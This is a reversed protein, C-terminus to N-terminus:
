QPAGKFFYSACKMVIGGVAGATILAFAFAGKGKNMIATLEDVKRMVEKLTANTETSHAKQQERIGEVHVELKALREGDPTETM